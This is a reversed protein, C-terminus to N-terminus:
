KNRHYISNSPGVRTKLQGFQQIKRLSEIGIEKFVQVCQPCFQKGSQEDIEAIAEEMLKAAKYPRNSIMADLADAISFIRVELPIEEGKLGRPYGSGDYREHHLLVINAAFKLYDIKRIIEYGVVPHLKVLNWEESSLPCNKSLIADPIGVKGIDHLIGAWALLRFKEEGLGFKEAILLAYSSVRASHGWTEHDRLDLTYALAKLTEEYTKNLEKLHNDQIELKETFTKNLLLLNQRFILFLSLILLVIPLFFLLIQRWYDAKSSFQWFNCYGAIFFVLFIFWFIIFDLISKGKITM